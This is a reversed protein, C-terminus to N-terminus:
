VVQKSINIKQLFDLSEGLYHVYEQLSHEYQDM